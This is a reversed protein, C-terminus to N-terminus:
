DQERDTQVIDWLLLKNYYWQYYWINVSLKTRFSHEMTSCSFGLLLMNEWFKWLWIAPHIYHYDCNSITHSNIYFVYLQWWNHHGLRKLSNQEPFQFVKSLHLSLHLILGTDFYSTFSAPNLCPHQLVPYRKVSITLLSIKCCIIECKSITLFKFCWSSLQCWGTTIQTTSLLMSKLHDMNFITLM